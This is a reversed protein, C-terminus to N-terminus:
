STVVNLPANLKLRDRSESCSAQFRDIYLGVMSKRGSLRRTWVTHIQQVPSGDVSELWHRIIILRKSRQEESIGMVQYCRRLLSSREETKFWRPKCAGM